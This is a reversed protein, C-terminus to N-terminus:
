HIAFSPHRIASPGLQSDPPGSLQNLDDSLEGTSIPADPGTFYPTRPRTVPRTGGIRTRREPARPRAPQVARSDGEKGLNISLGGLPIYRGGGGLSGPGGPSRTENARAWGGGAMRCGGDGM